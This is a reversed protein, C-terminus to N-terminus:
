RQFPIVIEPKRRYVRNTTATSHHQLLKAAHKASKVDSARKARLDRKYFREELKANNNANRINVFVFFEVKSSLIAYNHIQLHM